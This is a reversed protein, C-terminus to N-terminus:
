DDAKRKNKKNGYEISSEAVKLPKIELNMDDLYSNNNYKKNCKNSDFLLESFDKDFENMRVDQNFFHFGWIRYKNDDKLVKVPIAEDRMQLMFEEKWADKEILHTGKPEIFIQM